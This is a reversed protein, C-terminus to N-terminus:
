VVAEGICRQAGVPMDLSAHRLLEEVTKVFDHVSFPKTLTITAGFKRAMTLFDPGRSRTAGGSIALIPVCCTANRLARIIEIGDTEPMFIDTIVIDPQFVANMEIGERGDKAEITDHGAFKLMRKILRRHQENDDIILIRAM